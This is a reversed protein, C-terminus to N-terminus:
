IYIYIYVSNSLLDGMHTLIRHFVVAVLCFIM